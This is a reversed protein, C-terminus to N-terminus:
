RRTTTTTPRRRLTTTNLSGMPVMLNVLRVNITSPTTPSLREPRQRRSLPSGSWAGCGYVGATFVMM